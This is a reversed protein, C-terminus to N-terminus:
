AQISQIIIGTVVDKREKLFQQYADADNAFLIRQMLPRAAIPFVCLSILNIIIHRPDVSRINRKEIEGSFQRIFIDPNLGSGKMIEFIRDPHRNIEHLIFAPIIENNMLMEMYEAVIREIKETLTVPSSLIEQIQPVFHQFAYLFVSTFLNEKTRFYYHLLSKNICAENAILQMSTGDFGNSIFVKRAAEIIRNETSSLAPHPLNVM